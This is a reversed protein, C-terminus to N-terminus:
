TYYVGQMYPSPPIGTIHIQQTCSLNKCLGIVCNFSCTKLKIREHSDEYTVYSTTPHFIKSAYATVCYSIWAAEVKIAGAHPLIVPLVASSTAASLVVAHHTFM